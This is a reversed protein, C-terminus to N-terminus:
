ANKAMSTVMWAVNEENPVRRPIGASRDVFLEPDAAWESVESFGELKPFWGKSPQAPFLRVRTGPWEDRISTRIRGLAVDILDVFPFWWLEGAPLPGEFASRAPSRFRDPWADPCRDDSMVAVDMAGCHRGATARFEPRLQRDSFPDGGSAKVTFRSLADAVTNDVVTRDVGSYM